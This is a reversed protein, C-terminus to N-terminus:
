RGRSMNYANRILIATSIASVAAGALVAHSVGRAADDIRDLTERRMGDLRKEQAEPLLISGLSALGAARYSV